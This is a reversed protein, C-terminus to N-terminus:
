IDGIRSPWTHLHLASRPRGAANNGEYYSESSAAKVVVSSTSSASSSSSSSSSSSTSSSSSSSSTSTGASRDRVCAPWGLQIVKAPAGRGHVVIPKRAFGVLCHTVAISLLSFTFHCGKNHVTM